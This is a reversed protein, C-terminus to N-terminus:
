CKREERAIEALVRVLSPEFSGEIELWAGNRFGMRCKGVGKAAPMSASPKEEVELIRVDPSTGAAEEGREKIWRELRRPDLGEVRCFESVTTGSEEYLSVAMEQEARSYRKRKEM